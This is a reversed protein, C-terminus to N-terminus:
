TGSGPKKRASTKRPTTRSTRTVGKKLPAPLRQRLESFEAWPDASLHHLRLTLNSVSYHAPGVGSNLEDWTIPTSIPAGARARTSYAAVATAGRANRLYDVFIRKNRSRKAMSATYRGPKLAAMNEAISRAFEKAATWDAGSRLPAVVHLGKGGTTKVFSELGTDRLLARVDHAGEIVDTWQLGPGPDLDFTIRDPRDVDDIRSGWPHLELVSAQVLGMLGDFDEIYLVEEDDGEPRLRRISDDLGAWAHKQFFCSESIGEPCRLLSLPRGVIHPSIWKWIEAYFQALGLKTVGADPWLLREPHTLRSEDIEPVDSTRSTAPMSTESTAESATKDDRLGRFVSHSILGGHTWTHFEIDAVIRPETWRLGRGNEEPPLRDLPPTSRRLPDLKKFLASTEQESFGTGVRGRYILEGSKYQGLALAGIARRTTTSPSFGIVVFEDSHTCKSKIWNAGYGSHYPRDLRKSVIGELGMKCAQDLVAKGDFSLHDSRRIPSDASLDALIERLQAYRKSLPLRRLDKGDRFLLDFAYYKLDADHGNKLAVQLASFSSAGSEKEVVLEGDIIVSTVPLERFAHSLAGFKATWDLGKRTYLAVKDGARIAQIRYGDFKVEHIWSKGAPPKDALKALCPEVFSPLPPDEDTAVADISRHTIVSDPSADLVDPDDPQSAAADDSKILLWSEQKERPRKRMRVLHWHGRLKSGELEFSLHGKALAKHPDDEPIWTGRDWVIVSGAGYQGKPIVGEFSGYDLPHDEVHIALRKEGPVLSPGKAVAWSKLVGDLELRLDYHLRRAAHKQIVFTLAKAPSKRRGGRPESTKSFDRKSTYDRLDVSM